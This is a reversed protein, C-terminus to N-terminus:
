YSITGDLLLQGQGTQLNETGGLRGSGSANTFRGTGGTIQYTGTVAFIPPVSTPNLTGAYTARLEDGNAAILTLKGNSFTYTYGAAPPAICDQATGTVQGLHTAQGSGSTLGALYPVSQCQAPNPGIQEQTTLRASFPVNTPGAVASLAAVALATACATRIIITM